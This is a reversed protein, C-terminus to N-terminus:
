ALTRNARIEKLQMNMLSTNFNESCSQCIINTETVYNCIECYNHKLNSTGTGICKHIGCLLLGCILCKTKLFRTM